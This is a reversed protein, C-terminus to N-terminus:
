STNVPITERVATHWFKQKIFSLHYIDTSLMCWGYSGSINHLQSQIRFLTYISKQVCLPQWIVKVSAVPISCTYKPKGPMRELSSFASGIVGNSKWSHFHIKWTRRDLFWNCHLLSPSSICLEFHHAHSTSGTHILNLFINCSFCTSPFYQQCYMCGKSSIISHLEPLM